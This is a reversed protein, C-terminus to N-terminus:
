ILLACNQAKNEKNTVQITHKIILRCDDVTLATLDGEFTPYGFIRVNGVLRVDYEINGDKEIAEIVAPKPKEKYLGVDDVAFTFKKGEIDLYAFDLYECGLMKTILDNEPNIDVVEPFKGKEVDIFMAKM